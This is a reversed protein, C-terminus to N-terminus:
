EICETLHHDAASAGVQHQLLHAVEVDAVVCDHLWLECEEGDVEKLSVTLDAAQAEECFHWTKLVLIKERLQFARV